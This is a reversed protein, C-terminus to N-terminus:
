EYMGICERIDELTVDEKGILKQITRADKNLDRGTLASALGMISKPIITDVGCIDGISIFLGLGQPVDETIYRHNIFSPGKNSSEAFTAFVEMADKSLDEENRWKAAEFYNLSDCGFMNLIKNKQEDLQRIVNVISPTFAERYMWFEGKSYEIRSASFLLGIPHVIMNPNHLASELIHRRTYHTNHFVKSYIKLVESTASVPLVSIANRPNYFTIHVYMKDVIRGNYATTEWESYIIKKEIYKKFILSGMYGPVLTIIQGNRIYPAILKAVHEHQSTTTMVMIVDAFEIAKKIDKTILEPRVFFTKGGNTDDKVEYGGESCVKDFFESNVAASSKLLAVPINEEYLKAAHILGANGCGIITFKM